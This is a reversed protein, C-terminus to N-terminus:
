SDCQDTARRWARLARPLRIQKLTHKPHPTATLTLTERQDLCRASSRTLKYVHPAVELPAFTNAARAEIARHQDPASSKSLGRTQRSMDARGPLRMRLEVGLPPSGGSIRALPGSCVALHM